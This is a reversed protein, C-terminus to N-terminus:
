LRLWNKASIIDHFINIEGHSSGMFVQFFRLFSFIRPNPVVVARKAGSQWPSESVFKAMVITTLKVDKLQTCDILELMDPKFNVDESLKMQHNHLQKGDIVDSVKTFVAAHESDIDYIVTMIIYIYDM